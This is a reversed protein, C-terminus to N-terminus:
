PAMDLLQAARCSKRVAACERMCNGIESRSRGSPSQALCGQRCLQFSVNCQDQSEERDERTTVKPSGEPLRFKPIGPRAKQIARQAHALTLPQLPNGTSSAIGFGDLM